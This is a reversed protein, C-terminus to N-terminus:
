DKNEEITIYEKMKESDKSDSENINNGNDVLNSDSTKTVINNGSYLLSNSSSESIPHQSFVDESETDADILNKNAEPSKLDGRQSKIRNLLKKVATDPTKKSIREERLQKVVNNVDNLSVQPGM